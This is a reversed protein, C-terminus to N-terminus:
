CDMHNEIQILKDDEFILFFKDDCYRCTLLPVVILQKSKDYKVKYRKIYSKPFIKELDTLRTNKSLIVKPTILKKDTSKFDILILAVSDKYLEFSTEGYYLYTKTPSDDNFFSVCYETEVLTKKPKGFIIQMQKALEYIGIKGEIKVSDIHLIDYKNYYETETQSIVRQKGINLATNTVKSNILKRYFEINITDVEYNIKNPPIQNTIKKLAVICGSHITMGYYRYHHLIRPDYALELLKDIYLSDKKEGIQYIAEMQENKDTSNLMKEINDRNYRNCSLLFLSSLCLIMAIFKTNM